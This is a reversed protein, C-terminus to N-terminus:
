FQPCTGYKIWRYIEPVRCMTPGWYFMSLLCAFTQSRWATELSDCDTRLSGGFPLSGLDRGGGWHQSMALFSLLFFM